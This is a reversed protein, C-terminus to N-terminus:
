RTLVVIVTATAAFIQAVNTFLSVLDIGRDEPDRRPVVVTAGPEPRARRQVLGSPQQVFRKGEDADRSFGGAADIYYDM